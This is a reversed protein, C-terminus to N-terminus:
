ELGCMWENGWHGEEGELGDDYGDCVLTHLDELRVVPTLTRVDVFDNQANCLLALLSILLPLPFMDTGPFVCNVCHTVLPEFFVKEWHM